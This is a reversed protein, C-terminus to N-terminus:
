GVDRLVDDDQRRVGGVPIEGDPQGHNKNQLESTVPESLVAEEPPGKVSEEPPKAANWDIPGLRAIDYYLHDLYELFPCLEGHNQGGLSGPLLDRVPFASEIVDGPAGIDRDHESKQIVQALCPTYAGNEIRGAIDLGVHFINAGEIRRHGAFV